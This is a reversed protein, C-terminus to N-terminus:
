HLRRYLWEEASFAAWLLMSTVLWTAKSVIILAGIILWLVTLLIRRLM